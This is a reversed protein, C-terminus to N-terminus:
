SASNLANTCTASKSPLDLKAVHSVRIAMLEASM